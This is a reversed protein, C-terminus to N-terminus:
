LGVTSAHSGLRGGVGFVLNGLGLRRDNTKQFLLLFIYGFGFVELGGLGCHM